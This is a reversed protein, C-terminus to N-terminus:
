SAGKGILARALSVLGRVILSAVLLLLLSTWVYTLLPWLNDMLNDFRKWILGVMGIVAAIVVVAALAPRVPRRVPALRISLCAALYVFLPIRWNLWGADGCAECMRRLLRVQLQIQDWFADWSGPLEQPLSAAALLGGGTIFEKIVPEGLLWYVLMIAGMCAVLSVLSAVIPGVTKLKPATETTPEADTDKRRGNGGATDILKARRVEGGTILCGFIYAMESVVTGPLLAWNVYAPKFISAWLRYVGWGLLLIGFLWITFAAYIM